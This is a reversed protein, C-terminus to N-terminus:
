PRGGAPIVLHFTSGRGVESEVEISGGHGQAIALATPLGIGAGGGAVNGDSTGVFFREFLRVREEPDIGPGHDVVTWRVTFRRGALKLSQTLRSGQELAGNPADVLRDHITVWDALRAPDMVTDYVREPPAAIDISREVRM